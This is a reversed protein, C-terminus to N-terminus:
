YHTKNGGKEITEICREPMSSVLSSLSQSDIAAWAFQAAAALETLGAYQEGNAYMVRVLVGWMNEISNLDPSRAPWDLLDDKYKRLFEMTSRSM